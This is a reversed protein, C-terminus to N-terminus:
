AQIIGYQGRLPGDRRYWLYMGFRGCATLSTWMGRFGRMDPGVTHSSAAPRLHPRFFFYRANTPGHISHSAISMAGRVPHPPVEPGHISGAKGKISSYARVIPLYRRAPNLFSPALVLGMAGYSRQPPRARQPSAVTGRPSSPVGSIILPEVLSAM